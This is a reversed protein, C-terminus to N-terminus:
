TQRGTLHEDCELCIAGKAPNGLVRNHECDSKKSQINDVAPERSKGLTNPFTSPVGDKQDEEHLEQLDEEFKLLDDFISM